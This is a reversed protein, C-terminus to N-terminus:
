VAPRRDRGIHLVWLACLDRCHDPMVVHARIASAIGDLLAAGDVRHPWPKPDAFSVAHGQKRDTAGGSLGLRAREDEVLRDLITTRIGMGDAATKRDREYEITSLRALRAIEIDDDNAEDALARRDLEDETTRDTM